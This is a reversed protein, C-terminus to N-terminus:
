VTIKLFTLIGTTSTDSMMDICSRSHKAVDNFMANNVDVNDFM